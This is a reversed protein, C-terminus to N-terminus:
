IIRFILTTEGMKLTDGNKLNVSKGQPVPNGNVYVPNSNKASTIQYIVQGQPTQITRMGAHIRSMSIDPTLKIQAKSDASQRGLNYFKGYPLNVVGYSRGQYSMQFVARKQPQPQLGQVLRTKVDQNLGAVVRTKDNQLNDVVRTPKESIVQTEQSDVLTNNGAIPMDDASTVVPNPDPKQNHLVVSFPVTFSCKPCRFSTPPQRQLDFRRGCNPCKIIM